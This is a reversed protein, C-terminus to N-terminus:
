EKDKGEEAAKKAAAEEREKAGIVEPEAPAAGEVAAVPEEEKLPPHVTAVIQGRDTLVTVGEPLTLDGVTIMDGIQLAKVQVRVSEPINTPFCEIEVDSVPHDLIGGATVGAATGVLEVPVRLRIKEGLAVRTFDVHVPEDGMADYQVEKIMVTEKAGGIALDLVRVGHHLVVGLEHSGVSLTVNEGGHGYLVAPIKGQQRLKRSSETGKGTRKEAQLIQAEM